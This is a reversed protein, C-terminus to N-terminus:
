LLVMANITYKEELLIASMNALKQPKKHKLSTILTFARVAYNILMWKTKSSSTELYNKIEWNKELFKFWIKQIQICDELNYFVLQIEAVSGNLGWLRSM